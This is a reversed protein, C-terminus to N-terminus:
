LAALMTAAVLAGIGYSIPDRVTAVIPDENIQGRHARLWMRSIWYLLLPCILLLVSPRRYLVVVQESSVYLALVLVSLYGSSAGMTALLDRDSRAYGRRGLWEESGDKLRRLEAFRKLFALSLFLFTSFALLWSSFRVDTAAVGALVRLTYLGALILVDLIALRKFYGSYATTLVVYLALLGLFALPLTTLAIALAAAFLAPAVGWGLTTPLTGAAFPRHRKTPHRRDAQVDLLDNVVYGGSAVCCFAVFAYVGKLVVPGAFLKHDLVLPVFLLVNKVWQQPRLARVLARWRAPRAPPALQADGPPAGSPVVGPSAAAASPHAPPAAVGPRPDHDASM